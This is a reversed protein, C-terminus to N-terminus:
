FKVGVRAYIQRGFPDSVSPLYGSFRAFGPYQDFINTIGLTIDFKDNEGVSRSYQVDFVSYAKIPTTVAPRVRGTGTVNLAIGQDDFVGSTYRWTLSLANREYQLDVGASSRWRPAAAASGPSQLFSNRYGVGDYVVSGTVNGSADKILVGTDVDYKILYTVTSRLNVNVAGLDFSYQGSFDMGSTQTGSPANFSTVRVSQLVNSVPDRTVASGNPAANVVAQPSQASIQNSFKFNWYDFSLRMRSIPLFTAGINFVRSTQPKLSPNGYTLITRFATTGDIPDTINTSTTGVLVASGNALSPAQFAKSYSGRLSIQPIIRWNASFKPVTTSYGGTEEHRAAANLNLGDIPEIGAEVFAAKVQRSFATNVRKGSFASFGSLLLDSYVATSEERRFQAGLGLLLPHGNIRFLPGNVVAEGIYYKRKYNFFIDSLLNYILSPAQKALDGEFPSYYLCNGKGAISGAGPGAFTTNCNPGGFGNLAAQFLTMNTDKDRVLTESGSYTASVDYKWGSFLGGRSGLVVHFQNLADGAQKYKGQGPFGEAGIARGFYSVPVGFPNYPNSAPMIANGANMAYSPVAFRKSDQHYYSFESYVTHDDDIQYTLDGHLNISRSRPRVTAQPQFNYLCTGRGFTAGVAPSYVSNTGAAGCNPDVVRLIGNAAKTDYLTTYDNGGIVVHGGTATLPRSTLQYSGPFGTSSNSVFDTFPRDVSQLNDQFRYAASIVAHIKDNGVGVMAQIAYSPASKVATYQGSAKFGNFRTNTVINFVGAVADAGYTSSAGDLLVDVRQLAIDPALSNLNVYEDGASPTVRRGNLLVLTSGPGLGRLNASRADHSDSGGKALDQLGGSSGINQPIFRTLDGIAATGTRAIATADVALIPSARDEQRVAGLLSGTVIIDKSPDQDAAAPQDVPAPTAAQQGFAPNACAMALAFLSVGLAPANRKVVTTM